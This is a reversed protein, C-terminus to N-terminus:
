ASGKDHWLWLGGVVGMVAYAPGWPNSLALAAAEEEHGLKVLLALVFLAEGAVIGAITAATAIAQFALGRGSSAQAVAGSVVGGFLAAFWASQFGTVYSFGGWVLALLTATVVAAVVAARLDGLPKQCMVCDGGETNRAGCRRCVIVGM